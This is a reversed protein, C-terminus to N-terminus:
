PVLGVCGYRWPESEDSPALGRCIERRARGSSGVDAVSSPWRAARPAVMAVLVPRTPAATVSRAGVEQRSLRGRHEVRVSVHHLWGPYKLPDFMITDGEIRYRFTVDPFEKSIV